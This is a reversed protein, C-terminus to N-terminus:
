GFSLSSSSSSSGCFVVVLVVLLLVEGASLALSVDCWLLEPLLLLSLWGSSFVRRM